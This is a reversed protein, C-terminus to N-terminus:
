ATRGPIARLQPQGIGTQQQGFAALLDQNPNDKMAEVRAFNEEARSARTGGRRAPLPDDGWREQNLWTAPLATYQPDRNPDSAYRAAADLIEQVSAKGVAKAWVKVAGGRGQRRPYIAWFEAFGPPDNPKSRAPAPTPAPNTPPAPSRTEKVVGRNGQEETGPALGGSDERPSALSDGIQSDKYNMTGDPRPFRGNTAKDIRQFSEWWSLYMLRHGGAQYRHVFGNQHLESIAESVRALTRSTDRVMDRPFVDAIVLAVDDKGVGNDDVYSELGKLVLRADWSLDAIRESRWFEPKTSRIRM